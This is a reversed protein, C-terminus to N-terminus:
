EIVGGLYMRPQQLSGLYCNVELEGSLSNKKNNVTRRAHMLFFVFIIHLYTRGVGGRGRKHPLM